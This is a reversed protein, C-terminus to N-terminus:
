IHLSGRARVPIWVTVEREPNIGFDKFPEDQATVGEIHTFTVLLYHSLPEWVPGGDASRDLWRACYREIADATGEFLFGYMRAHTAVFPQLSANEGAQVWRHIFKTSAM